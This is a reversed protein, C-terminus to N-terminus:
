TNELYTLMVKQTVPDWTTNVIDAFELATKLTRVGSLRWYGHEKIEVFLTEGTKNIVKYWGPSMDLLPSRDVELPAEQSLFNKIRQVIDYAIGMKERFTDTADHISYSTVSELDELLPSLARNIVSREGRERITLDALTRESM